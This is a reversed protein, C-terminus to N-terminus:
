RYYYQYSGPIFNDENRCAPWRISSARFLYGTGTGAGALHAGAGLYGRGQGGRWWPRVKWEVRGAKPVGQYSGRYGRSTSGVASLGTAPTAAAGPRGAAGEAAGKEESPASQHAGGSGGITGGAAALDPLFFQSFSSLNGECTPDLANTCLIGDGPDEDGGYRPDSDLKAPHDPPSSCIVARIDCDASM